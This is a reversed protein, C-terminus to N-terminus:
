LLIMRCGPGRRCSGCGEPGKPKLLWMDGREGRRGSGRCGGVFGKRFLMAENSVVRGWKVDGVDCAEM